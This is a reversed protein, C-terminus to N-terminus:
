DTGRREAIDALRAALRDRAEGIEIQIAAGDKGTHEVTHRERYSTDRQKILFMLLADSYTRFVVERQYDGKGIVKVDEVGEVARRRAEATLTDTGEQYARGWEAAFDPDADKARYLKRRLSENGAAQIISDGAALRELFRERDAATLPTHDQRAM